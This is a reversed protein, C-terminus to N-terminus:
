NLPIFTRNWRPMYYRQPDFSLAVGVARGVVRDRSVFGFTRSDLSNDRNDGMVFLSREPVIVPGYSDIRAYDTRAVNWSEGHLTERAVTMASNSHVKEYNAAVGNVLLANRRIEIRDGPVGIVRKVYRREDVPSWFVIVEGRTPDNWEAITWRSFPAKLGYALKNVAIRDGEVISPRMSGTPVSNWDAIASRFSTLAVIVLLLFRVERLIRQFRTSKAPNM